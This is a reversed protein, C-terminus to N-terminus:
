PLCICYISSLYLLYSLIFRVWPSETKLLVFFGDNVQLDRLELSATVVELNGLVISTM